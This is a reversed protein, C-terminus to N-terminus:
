KNKNIYKTHETYYFLPKYKYLETIKVKLTEDKIHELSAEDMTLDNDMIIKVAKQISNKYIGVYGVKGVGGLIMVLPLMIPHLNVYELKGDIPIVRDKSYYHKGNYISIGSKMANLYAMSDRSIVAIKKNGYDDKVKSPIFCHEETDTLMFEITGNKHLQGLIEYVVNLLKRFFNCERDKDIAKRWLPYLSRMEYHPNREDKGYFIVKKHSLKNIYTNGLIAVIAEITEGGALNANIENIVSRYSLPSLFSNIDVMVIDADEIWSDNFSILKAIVDEAISPTM